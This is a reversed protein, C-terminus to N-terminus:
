ILHYSLVHIARMFSFLDKRFLNPNKLEIPRILHRLCILYCLKSRVYVGVESNGDLILVKICLAFISYTFFFGKTPKYGPPTSRIRVRVDLFVPDLGSKM